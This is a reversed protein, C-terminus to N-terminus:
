RGFSVYVLYRFLSGSNVVCFLIYVAVLRKAASEDGSVTNVVPVRMALLAIGLSADLAPRFAVKTGTRHIFFQLSEEGCLAPSLTRAAAALNLPDVAAAVHPLYATGCWANPVQKASSPM